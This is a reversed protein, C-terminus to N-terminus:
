KHSGNDIIMNPFDRFSVVRCFPKQAYKVDLVTLFDQRTWSSLNEYITKGLTIEKNKLFNGARDFLYLCNYYQRDGTISDPYSITRFYAITDGMEFFRTPPNIFALTSDCKSYLISVSDDAPFFFCNLIRKKKLDIVTKRMYLEWDPSKLSYSILLIKDKELQYIHARFNEHGDITKSKIKNIEFKNKNLKMKLFLEYYPKPKKSWTLGHALLTGDPLIVLGSLGFRKETQIDKKLIGNKDIMLYRYDRFGHDMTYNQLFIHVNSEDDAIMMNGQEEYMGHMNNGDLINKPYCIVEGDKSFSAYKYQVNFPPNYNYYFVHANGNNDIFCRFMNQNKFSYKESLILHNVMEIQPPLPFAAQTGLIFVLSFIVLKCFKIM